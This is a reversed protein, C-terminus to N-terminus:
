KNHDEEIDKLNLEYKKILVKDHEIFHSFILACILAMMGWQTMDKPFDVNLLWLGM